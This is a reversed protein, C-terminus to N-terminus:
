LLLQSAANKNLELLASQPLNFKINKFLVEKDPSPPAVKVPKM